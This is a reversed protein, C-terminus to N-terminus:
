PIHLSPGIFAACMQCQSSITHLRLNIYSPLCHTSRLSTWMWFYIQDTWVMRRSLMRCLGQGIYCETIDNPFAVKWQSIFMEQFVCAKSLLTQQQGIGIYGLQYACDIPIVHLGKNIIGITPWCWNGLDCVFMIINDVNAMTFIVWDICVWWSRHTYAKSPAANCHGIDSELHACTIESTHM